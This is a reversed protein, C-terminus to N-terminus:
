LYVCPGRLRSAPSGGTIAITLSPSKRKMFCGYNEVLGKRKLFPKQNVKVKALRVLNSFNAKVPFM